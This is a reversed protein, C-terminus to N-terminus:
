FGNFLVLCLYVSVFLKSGEITWTEHQVAQIAELFFKALVKGQVSTAAEGGEVLLVYYHHGIGAVPQMILLGPLDALVQM